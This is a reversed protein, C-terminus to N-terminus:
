FPHFRGGASGGVSGQLTPSETDENLMAGNALALMVPVHAVPAVRFRPVSGAIFDEVIGEWSSRGLGANCRYIVDHPRNSIGARVAVLVSEV